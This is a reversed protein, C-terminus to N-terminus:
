PLFLPLRTFGAQAFHHDSSFAEVIGRQRMVIFSTADVYSWNKDPRQRLLQWAVTDTPEYIYVVQAIRKIQEVFDLLHTRPLRTRTSLLPVVETLVYNTTVLPRGSAILERSFAEMEQHHDTNQIVPAAWGSTDVFIANSPNTVM